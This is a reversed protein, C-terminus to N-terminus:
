MLFRALVVRFWRSRARMRRRADDKNGAARRGALLRKARVAALLVDVKGTDDAAVDM